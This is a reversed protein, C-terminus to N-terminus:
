CPGRSQAGGDCLVPKVVIWTVVLGAGVAAATIVKTRTWFGGSKKNLNKVDAFAIRTAAGSGDIITFADAEVNSVYGKVKTKDNLEVEVRADKGLGAKAVEIRARDEASQTQPAASVHLGMLASISLALMAIVPIRKFM